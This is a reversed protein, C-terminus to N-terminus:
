WHKNSRALNLQQPGFPNFIFRPNDILADYTMSLEKSRSHYIPPMGTQPILGIPFLGDGPAPGAFPKPKSNM